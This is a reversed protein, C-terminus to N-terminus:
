PLKRVEKAFDEMNVSFSIPQSAGGPVMVVSVEKAKLLNKTQSASLQVAALCGDPTCNQLVLPIPKEESIKVVAGSQLNIGLPLMTVVFPKKDENMYGFSFRLALQGSETRHDQSAFCTKKKKDKDEECVTAWLKKPANPDIPTDAIKEPIKAGSSKSTAADTHDSIEALVIDSSEGTAADTTLCGSSLVAFGIASLMPMRLISSKNKIM